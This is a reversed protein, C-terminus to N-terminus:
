QVLRLSRRSRRFDPRRQGYGENVFVIRYPRSSTNTQANHPCLVRQDALTRGANEATVLCEERPQDSRVNRTADAAEQPVREAHRGTQSPPKTCVIQQQQQSDACLVRYYLRFAIHAVSARDKGFCRKGLVVNNWYHVLCWCQAERARTAPIRRNNSINHLLATRIQHPPQSQYAYRNAGPCRMISVSSAQRYFTQMLSGRESM